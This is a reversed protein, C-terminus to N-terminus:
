LSFELQECMPCRSLHRMPPEPKTVPFSYRIKSQDGYDRGFPM